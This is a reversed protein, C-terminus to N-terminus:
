RMSSRGPTLAAFTGAIERLPILFDPMPEAQQLRQAGYDYRWGFSVIRRNGLYGHFDFPKFPLAEFRVALRTEDKPSVLDPKYVFGPVLPTEFLDPLQSAKKTPM